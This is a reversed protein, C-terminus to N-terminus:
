FTTNIDRATIPQINLQDTNRKHARVANHTEYCTQLREPQRRRKLGSLGPFSIFSHSSQSHVYYYNKEAYNFWIETEAYNTKQM